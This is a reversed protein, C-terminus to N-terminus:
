QENSGTFRGFDLAKAPTAIKKIEDLRETIKELEKKRLRALFPTFQGQAVRFVCREFLTELHQGRVYFRKKRGAMYSKITYPNNHLYDKVYEPVQEQKLNHKRVFEENYMIHPKPYISGIIRVVHDRVIASLYTGQCDGPCIQVEPFQRKEPCDGKGLLLEVYFLRADKLYVAKVERGEIQM